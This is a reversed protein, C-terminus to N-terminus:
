FDAITVHGNLATWSAVQFVLFSPSVGTIVYIPANILFAGSELEITTHVLLELHTNSCLFLMYLPPSLCCINLNM